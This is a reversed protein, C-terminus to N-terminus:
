LDFACGELACREQAGRGAGWCLGAAWVLLVEVTPLLLRLRRGCRDLKVVLVVVVEIRGARVERLVVRQELAAGLERQVVRRVVSRQAGQLICVLVSRVRLRDRPCNQVM